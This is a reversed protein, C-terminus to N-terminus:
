SRPRGTGESASAAVPRESEKVPPASQTGPDAVPEAIITAEVPGFHPAPIQMTHFLWVIVFHAVVIAIVMAVGRTVRFMLNSQMRIRETSKPSCVIFVAAGGPMASLACDVTRSIEFRGIIQRIRRGTRTEL